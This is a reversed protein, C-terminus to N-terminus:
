VGPQMVNIKQVIALALTSSDASLNDSFVQSKKKVFKNM